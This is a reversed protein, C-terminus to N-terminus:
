CSCTGKWMVWVFYIFTCWVNIFCSCTSSKNWLPLTALGWVCDEFGNTSDVFGNSVSDSSSILEDSSDFTHYIIWIYVLWSVPM